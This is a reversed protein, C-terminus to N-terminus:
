RIWALWREVAQAAAFTLLVIASLRMWAKQRLLWGAADAALIVAAPYIAFDLRGVFEVAYREFRAGVPVLTAFAVYVLYTIAWGAVVRM